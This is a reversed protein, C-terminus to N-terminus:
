FENITPGGKGETINLRVLRATIPDFKVELHKGIAKGTHFTKWEDNDKYQLEFAKVRSGHDVCEQILARNFTLPQGLDVELWCPGTSADTAWRTEEDGDIARAAGYSQDNQYVNSATAKKGSTM